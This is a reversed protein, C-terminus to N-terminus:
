TSMSSARVAGGRWDNGQDDTRFLAEESSVLVNEAAAGEERVSESVSIRVCRGLPDSKCVLFWLNETRHKFIEVFTIVVWPQPVAFSPVRPLELRSCGLLVPSDLTRNVM